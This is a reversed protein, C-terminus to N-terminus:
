QGLMARRLKSLGAVKPKTTAPKVAPPASTGYEEGTFPNIDTAKHGKTKRKPVHKATVRIIGLTKAQGVGGPMTLSMIRDAEALLITKVDRATFSTLENSAREAVWEFAEAQTMPNRIPKLGETVPPKDNASRRGRRPAPAEERAPAARRRRPAEERVPPRGRRPVDDRAPRGRRPAEEHDSSRGRRPADENVSRRTPAPRSTTRTAM